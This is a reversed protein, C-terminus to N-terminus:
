VSSPTPPKRTDGRDGNKRTSFPLPTTVRRPWFEHPADSARCRSGNSQFRIAFPGKELTRPPAAEANARRLTPSSGTYCRSRLVIANNARANGGTRDCLAAHRREHGCPRGVALGSRHSALPRAVSFRCPITGASNGSQVWSPVRVRASSLFPFLLGNVVRRALLPTRVFPRRVWDPSPEPGAFGVPAPRIKDIPRCSRDGMGERKRRLIRRGSLQLPV